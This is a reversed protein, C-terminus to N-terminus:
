FKRDFPVFSELLARKLPAAQLTNDKFRYKCFKVRSGNQQKRQYFLSKEFYELDCLAYLIQPNLASLAPLM